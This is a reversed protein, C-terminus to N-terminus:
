VGGLGARKPALGLPLPHSHVEGTVLDERRLEEGLLWLQQGDIGVALVEEEAQAVHVTPRLTGNVMCHWRVDVGLGLVAVQGGCAATRAVAMARLGEVLHLQGQVEVGQPRLLYLRGEHFSMARVDAMRELTGHPELAVQDAVMPREVGDCTFSKPPFPPRQLLQVARPAQGVTAMCYLTTVLWALLTCMAIQLFYKWPLSSQGHGRIALQLGSILSRM